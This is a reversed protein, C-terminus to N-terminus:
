KKRCDFAGEDRVANDVDIFRWKAHGASLSLRMVGGYAVVQKESGARVSAHPYIEAGGTGVVNSTAM